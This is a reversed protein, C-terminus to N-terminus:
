SGIEVINRFIGVFVKVKIVVVIKLLLFELIGSKGVGEGEFFISM